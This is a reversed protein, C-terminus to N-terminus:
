VIGRGGCSRCKPREQSKDDPYFGVSVTTRGMCVPCVVPPRAHAPPMLAFAKDMESFAQDLSAFARDFHHWMVREQYDNDDPNPGYRIM